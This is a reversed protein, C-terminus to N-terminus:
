LWDSEPSRFRLACPAQRQRLAHKEAQGGLLVGETRM